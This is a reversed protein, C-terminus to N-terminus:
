YPTGVAAASKHPVFVGCGLLRHPGLGTDLMRLAHTTTLGDLMLGHGVLRGGDIAHRRGCIVRASVQLADLEAYVRRMFTIEDDDEDPRTTSTSVLHAYLTGWPLLEHARASGLRLVCGTLDLTCGVLELCDDLQAAPVRLTLRSRRSLLAQSGASLRLPHVGIGPTNALPPWALTLAEALEHHYDHSLARTSAAADLEVAFAVDVMTPVVDSM